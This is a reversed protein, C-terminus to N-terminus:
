FPMETYFIEGSKEDVHEIACRIPIMKTQGDSDVVSVMEEEPGTTDGGDGEDPGAAEPAPQEQQREAQNKPEFGRLPKDPGQYLEIADCFKEYREPPLTKVLHAVLDPYRVGDAQVEMSGLHLMDGIVDFGHVEPKIEQGKKRAIAIARKAMAESVKTHTRNGGNSSSSRGRQQNGNGGGEPTGDRPMEEYPTGSYGALVPIWRLAQALAKSTARTQAMSLCAHRNPRGHEMWRDILEETGRKKVREDFHCASEAAGIVAGNAMRIAQVRAKYGELEGTTPHRVEDTWETKPSVGVMMGCTVWAEVMLHEKRGMPVALERKKIVDDLKNAIQTARELGIDVKGFDTLADPPAAQRAM